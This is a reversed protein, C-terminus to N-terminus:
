ELKKKIVAAIRTMVRSRAVYVKGRSIGLQKSVEDISMEDVTSLWFAQWNDAQFSPKVKGAAWRFLQKEYELRFERSEDETPNPIQEIEEPTASSFPRRRNRRLHDITLNRTVRYLWGRFSGKDPDPDWKSISNAVRNLVDQTVEAADAHQLGRKCAIALILPEYTQVFEAWADGDESDHLRGILSLRTEPSDDTM